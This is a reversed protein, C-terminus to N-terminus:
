LFAGEDMLDWKRSTLKKVKKVPSGSGSSISGNSIRLTEM